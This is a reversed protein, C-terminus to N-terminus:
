FEVTVGSDGADIGLMDSLFGQVRPLVNGTAISVLLATMAIGAVAYVAQLVTGAPDGIPDYSTDTIPDTFEVM